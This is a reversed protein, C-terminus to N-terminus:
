EESYILFLMRYDYISSIKWESIGISRGLDHMDKDLSRFGTVANIVIPFFLNSM